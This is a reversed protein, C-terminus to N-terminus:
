KEAEVCDYSLWLQQTTGVLDLMVKVCQKRRDVKVITAQLNALLGDTIRIKNGESVASLIGICGNNKWIRHAFAADAGILYGDMDNTYRLMQFINAHSTIVKAPYEEMGYVFIYGPLLAHEVVSWQGRKVIKKRKIPSLAKVISSCSDDQNISEIVQKETGTLCQFCRVNAYNM